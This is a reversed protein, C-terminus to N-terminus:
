SHHLHQKYVPGLRQLAMWSATPHSSSSWLEPMALPWAAGECNAGQAALTLTWRKVEGFCYARVGDCPIGGGKGGRLGDTRLLSELYILM